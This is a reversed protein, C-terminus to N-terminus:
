CRGSVNQTKCKWGKKYEHPWSDQFTTSRAAVMMESMPDEEKRNVDGNRLAICAHLAWACEPSHLMHETAPNDTAEWGDLSKKCLFCTVNDPETATPRYYFGAM